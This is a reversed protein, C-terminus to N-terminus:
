SPCSAVATFTVTGTYAGPPAGAPVHLSLNVNEYHCCELNMDFCAALWLPGVADITCNMNGEPIVYGDPGTLGGPATVQIDIPANNTSHVTLGGTTEDWTDDGVVTGTSGPAISPFTVSALDLDIGMMGLYEFTNELPDSYLEGDYATVSVTYMGAPDCPDMDFTGSYGVCDIDPAPTCTCASCDVTSNSTLVVNYVPSGGPGTVTANVSQIAVNGNPDCVCAVITVTKDANQNPMVTINGPDALTSDPEEWKCCVYPKENGVTADITVVDTDASVMAPVGIAMAVIGAMLIAIIKMNM